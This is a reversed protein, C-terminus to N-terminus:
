SAVRLAPVRFNSAGAKVVLGGDTLGQEVLGGGGPKTLLDVFIRLVDVGGLLTDGHESGLQPRSM